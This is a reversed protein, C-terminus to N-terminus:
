SLRPRRGRNESNLPSFMPMIIVRRDKRTLFKHAYLDGNNTQPLNARGDPQRQLRMIDIDM